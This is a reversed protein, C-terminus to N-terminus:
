EPFWHDINIGYRYAIEIVRSDNKWCGDTFEGSSNEPGVQFWYAIQSILCQRATTRTPNALLKELDEQDVYGGTMDVPEDYSEWLYRRDDLAQDYTNRNM